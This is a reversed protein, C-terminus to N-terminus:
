RRGRRAQAPAAEPQMLMGREEATRPYRAAVRPLAGELREDGGERLLLEIASTGEPLERALLYGTGLESPIIQGLAKRAGGEGRAAVVYERGEPPAVLGYLYVRVARQDPNAIAVGSETADAQLGLGAPNDAGCGACTPSHSPADTALRRPTEAGARASSM